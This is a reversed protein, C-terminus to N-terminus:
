IYTKTGLKNLETGSYKIPWPVTKIKDSSLSIMAINIELHFDIKKVHCLSIEILFLPSGPLIARTQLEYWKSPQTLIIAM